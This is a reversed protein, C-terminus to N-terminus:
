IIAVIVIAVFLSIIVIWYGRTSSELNSVIGVHRTESNLRSDVREVDNTLNDIIDTGNRYEILCLSLLGSAVTTWM